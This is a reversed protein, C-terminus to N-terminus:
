FSINSNSKKLNQPKEPNSIWFFGSKEEQLNLTPKGLDIIGAVPDQLFSAFFDSSGAPFWLFNSSCPLRVGVPFQGSKKRYIGILNRHKGAPISQFDDSNVLVPLKRAPKNSRPLQALFFRLINVSRSLYSAKESTPIPHLFSV